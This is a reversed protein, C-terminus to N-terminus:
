KAVEIFGKPRGLRDKAWQNTWYLRLSAYRAYNHHDPPYIFIGYSDCGFAPVTQKGPILTAIVRRTAAPLADYTPGDMFTVVDVDAPSAIMSVFSGDVWQYLVPILAGL